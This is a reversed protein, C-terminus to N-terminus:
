LDFDDTLPSDWITLERLFNPPQTRDFQFIRIASTPRRDEPRGYVYNESILGDVDVEGLEAMAARIGARSLDGMAVALELLAHVAISQVYGSLNFTNVAGDGFQEFRELFKVMGPVSTDNLNPSDVAVYYKEYLDPRGGALLNLYTPLLGLWVPEFGQGEAESLIASQEVPVTIGFVVTCGADSLTTVQATFARDGRNITVREALEVGLRPIAFELGRLADKGYKDNVYVVCYVDSPSAMGSENVYWDALNIVEYEYAAGTPLLLEERAWAGALSGPVAVVGDEKLFELLAQTPPTSLVEAFMVVDGKIRQYETVTTQVNDKTDGPVLEVKYKGAVGGNSNVWGWYAQAGALLPVGLLALSGSSDTLYGLKITSGDFGITPQPPQAPPPPPAPEPPPPPTPPESPPDPESATEGESTTTPEEGAASPASTSSTSEPATGDSPPNPDAPPAPEGAPATPDAPPAPATPPAPETPPAPPASVQEEGGGCASALLVLVAAACAAVFARRRLTRRSPSTQRTTEQCLKM